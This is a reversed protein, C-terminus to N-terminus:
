REFCAASRSTLALCRIRDTGAKFLGVEGQILLLMLSNNRPEPQAFVRFPQAISHTLMLPWTYLAVLRITDSLLIAETDLAIKVGM